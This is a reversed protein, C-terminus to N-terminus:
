ATVLALLFGDHGKSGVTQIATASVRRESAVLENLRRVGQVSADASSADVVAGGRIVNDVVSVSGPRSLRLAHAFYEANHQKDADIFFFDFPGRLTPLVDLAAGVVLEVSPPLARRAVAAHRENQEITVLREPRARALWLTSYGALTGIELISRANYTRALLELLKGQLPSVNHPPLGAADAEHLARELSADPSLLQEELYRDVETWNNVGHV